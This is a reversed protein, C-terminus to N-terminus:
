SFCCRSAEGTTELTAVNRADWIEDVAPGQSALLFAGLVLMAAGAIALRMPWPNRTSQAM